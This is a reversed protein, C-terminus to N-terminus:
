WKLLILDQSSHLPVHGFKQQKKQENQEMQSM